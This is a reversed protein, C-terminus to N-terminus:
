WREQMCADAIGGGRFLVPRFGVGPHHLGRLGLGCARATGVCWLLTTGISGCAVAAGDCWFLVPGAVLALLNCLRAM